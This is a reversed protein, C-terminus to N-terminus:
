SGRTRGASAAGTAPHVAWIQPRESVLANIWRFPCALYELIAKGAGRVGDVHELVIIGRRTFV